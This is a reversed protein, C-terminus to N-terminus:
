CFSIFHSLQAYLDTAHRGVAHIDFFAHVDFSFDISLWPVMIDLSIDLITFVRKSGRYLKELEKQTPFDQVFPVMVCSQKSAYIGKLSVMQHFLRMFAQKSGMGTSRQRGLFNHSEAAIPKGHFAIEDLMYPYTVTALDILISLINSMM